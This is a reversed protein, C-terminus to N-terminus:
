ERRLIDAPFPNLCLAVVVRLVRGPYAVRLDVLDDLSDGM